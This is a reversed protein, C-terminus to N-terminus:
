LITLFNVKKKLNFYKKLSKKEWFAIVFALTKISFVEYTLTLACPGSKAKWIM